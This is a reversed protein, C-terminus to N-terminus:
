CWCFNCLCAEPCVGPLHDLGIAAGAVRDQAVDLLSGTPTAPNSTIRHIGHHAVRAFKGLGPRIAVVGSIRLKEVDCGYRPGRSQENEQIFVRVAYVVTIEDVLRVIVLQGNRLWISYIKVSGVM